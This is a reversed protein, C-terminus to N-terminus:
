VTLLLGGGGEEWSWVLKVRSNQSERDGHKNREEKFKRCPLEL